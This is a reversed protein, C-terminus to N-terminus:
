ALMAAKSAMSGAKSPTDVGNEMEGGMSGAVVPLLLEVDVYATGMVDVLGGASVAHFPDYVGAAATGHQAVFRFRWVILYDRGLVVLYGIRPRHDRM